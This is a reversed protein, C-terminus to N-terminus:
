PKTKLHALHVLAEVCVRSISRVADLDGKTANFRRNHASRDGLAKLERLAKKSERGLSLPASGLARAIIEGLMLYNGDTGKIEAERGQHEYVEILLTEVARRLMVSTADFYTASYCGNLQRCVKELYGRTHEWIPKPLYSQAHDIIPEAEGLVPALVEQVRAKADARLRFRGDSSLTKRDRTLTRRLVTPNPNGLSHSRLVNAIEVATLGDGKGFQADWWLLALAKTLTDRPGKALRSCFDKLAM